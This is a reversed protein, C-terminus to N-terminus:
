RVRELANDTRAAGNCGCGTQQAAKAAADAVCCADVNAPAPGGCCQQSEGGVTRSVGLDVSCVGTKPLVLHVERAATHDGAIEAVVSRVQEYGTAMLFTPARGYSKSGVITFGPEPHALEVVGHPPVDGCSHLNPDILPALAPPAEVTPDLAIRLERLFSLDPRFGTTVIIRDVVISYPAGALLADVRLSDGEKQIRSVAFPALMNLRGDEMANKAALGLAGREPLQDNLGGGLLRDVGGRRLAWFIETSPETEQVEMLALAANIASHGGGIVLVRKGAFTAREAGAVDPIGYFIHDSAAAEGSVPLGDVGIPNPQTWTGSADIVARVQLREEEEDSNRYRVVFASGERGASSVKDLGERTIATVTVGLKLNQAIQPLAALPRLYTGVIDSGTPLADDDPCQWGAKELLSRAAADINYKWPSFVRVHGWELLSAGVTDGREFVILPIGRTVLHAAAALGVPGAGIVAVPLEKVNSM